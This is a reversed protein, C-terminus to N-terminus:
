RQRLILQRFRRNFMMYFLFNSSAKVAVLFNSIDVLLGYTDTSVLKLGFLYSNAELGSVILPLTRCFLFSVSLFILLKTTMETSNGSSHRRSNPNSIGSWLNKEAFIKYAVACNCGFVVGFPLMFMVLGNTLIMYYFKYSYSNRLSTVGLRLMTTSNKYNCPTLNLELLRPINFICAFLFVGAIMSRAFNSTNIMRTQFPYFVAFFRVASIVAILLTSANEAVSGFPYSILTLQNVLSHVDAQADVYSTLIPIVLMFVCSVLTLSDAVCLASLYNRFTTVGLYTRILVTLCLCNGFLGIFCVAMMCFGNLVVTNVPYISQCQKEEM